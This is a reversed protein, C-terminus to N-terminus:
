DAFKVIYIGGKYEPFEKILLEKLATAEEATAFKGVRVKWFPSV